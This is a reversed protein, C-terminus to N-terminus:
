QISGAQNTEPHFEKSARGFGGRRLLRTGQRDAQAPNSKGQEKNMMGQEKNM